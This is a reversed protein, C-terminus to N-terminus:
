ARALGSPVFPTSNLFRVHAGFRLGM